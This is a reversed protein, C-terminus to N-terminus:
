QARVPRVTSTLPSRSLVDLAAERDLALQARLADLSPFRRIDRLRHTWEIRVMRGYLDRDLGFLHAELSRQTEGVTPRPGQNLMAGAIGGGWEVRAAWVGDPPLAKEPPPGELNITPVGISRGRGAGHVVLGTFRYPRGLSAAVGALDGAALASRIRTSSVPRGNADLSPPVVTVAFGLREGVAPLSRSDAERRHGFGHDEGLVLERMNCRRQLVERVFEEASLAALRTDFRLVLVRALDYEALLELREPGVTLRGAIGGNSLVARPHPEFTVLVPALGTVEARRLLERVVAQHGLHMGDFSGVTVV